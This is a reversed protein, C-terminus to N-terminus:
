GSSVLRNDEVTHRGDWRKPYRLHVPFIHRIRALVQWLFLAAVPLLGGM